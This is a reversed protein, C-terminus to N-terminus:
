PASPATPARSRRRQDTPRWSAVADRPHVSGGDAFEYAADMDTIGRTRIYGYMRAYPLFYILFPFFNKTIILDAQLVDLGAERFFRPAVALTPGECVIIRVSGCDLVVNRQRGLGIRKHAVRVDLTVPDAFPTGTRGGLEVRLSTGDPVDWLQSTALDDRLPVYTVLGQARDVLARILATNEGPAGATVVDSADSFVCVGIKRRFSARRVKEIAQEPTVFSTPLQHRAGWCRDALEDALADMAAPGATTHADAVVLVSWGLEPHRNWPHCMCVSTSLIGPLKEMTRARRLISRMPELLDITSGGGLIMPLSRWTMVPRVEGVVTRLLLRAAHVGVSVHDRHPNTRYAVIIDAGDVLAPTVNAHLDLSVCVPVADGLVARAAAVIESEPSSRADLPLDSVGMAGHLCLYLGDIPGAAQLEDHLREVISAFCARTLPGSPVCWASFLPVLEVEWHRERAVRRAGRVFGTLEANKLFGDAEIGTRTVAERLRGAPLFHAKEFDELRTPLGSLANTEQSLRAYAIRWVRGKAPDRRDAEAAPPGDMRRENMTAEM